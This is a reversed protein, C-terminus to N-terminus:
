YRSKNLYCNIEFPSSNFMSLKLYAAKGWSNIVSGKRNFYTIVLRNVFANFNVCFPPIVKSIFIM